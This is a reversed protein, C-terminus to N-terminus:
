TGPPPTMRSVSSLQHHTAGSPQPRLDPDDQAQRQALGCNIGDDAQDGFEGGITPETMGGRSEVRRLAPTFVEVERQLDEADTEREHRDNQSKIQQAQVVIQPGDRLPEADVAALREVVDERAYAEGGGDAQGPDSQIEGAAGQADGGVDDGTPEVLIPPCNRDEDERCDLVGYELLDHHHTIEDGAEAFEGPACRDGDHRARGDTATIVEILAEAGAEAVEHHAQDETIPEVAGFPDHREDDRM